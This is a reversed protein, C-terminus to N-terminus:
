INGDVGMESVLYWDLVFHTHGDLVLFAMFMKEKAISHANLSSMVHLSLATTSKHMDLIVAISPPM